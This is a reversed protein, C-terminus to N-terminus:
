VPKGYQRSAEDQRDRLRIGSGVAGALEFFQFVRRADRDMARPQPGDAVSCIPKYSPVLGRVPVGGPRADDPSRRQHVLWRTSAAAWADRISRGIRRDGAFVVDM